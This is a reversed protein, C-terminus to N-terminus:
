NNLIKKLKRMVQTTENIEYGEEETKPKIEDFYEYLAETYAVSKDWQVRNKETQGRPILHYNDMLYAGFWETMKKMGYVNMHESNYFDEALNLGIADEQQDLDIYDFGYSKIIAGAANSRMFRYYDQDSMTICHPYRVFVVNDIKEDRCYDLFDRLAAEADANLAEEQYDGKIDRFADSTMKKTNTSIGKLLANGRLYLSLTSLGCKIMSVPHKWNDHYKVFPFFYSFKSDHGYDRIMAKMNGNLPSNDTIRRVSVERFLRKSDYLAGNTEVVILQPHQREIVEQLEYKWLTVPNANVAYPYSTFGFEEYAQASSFDAFIESSGMFVVDLSDKPEMYFGEIRRQDHDMNRFCFKEGIQLLLLVAVALSLWKFLRRSKRGM